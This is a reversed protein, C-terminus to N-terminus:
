HYRRRFSLSPRCGNVPTWKLHQRWAVGHQQIHKSILNACEAHLTSTVKTCTPAARDHDVANWFKRTEGQGALNLTGIDDRDLAKGVPCMQRGYLSTKRGMSARLTPKAGWTEEHRGLREQILVVVGRSFLDSTGNFAVEATASAILLNDVGDFGGSSYMSTINFSSRRGAIRM